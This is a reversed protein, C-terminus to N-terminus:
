QQIVEIGAHWGYFNGGNLRGTKTEVLSIKLNRDNFFIFQDAMSAKEVIEESFFFPHDNM